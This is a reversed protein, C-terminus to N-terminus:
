FTIRANSQPRGSLLITGGRPPQKQFALLPYVIQYFLIGGDLRVVARLSNM